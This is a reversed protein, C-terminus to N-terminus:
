GVYHASEMEVEGIGEIEKIKEALSDVIGGEDPMFVAIKLIKIGFALPEVKYEKFRVKPFEKEIIEKVKEVKEELNVEPSEPSIRYIVFVEGM